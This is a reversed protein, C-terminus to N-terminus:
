KTGDLSTVYCGHDDHGTVVGKGDPTFAICYAGFHKLKRSLLMKGTMLDWLHLYGAYGSTALTKGDRSLALGYLDDPTPGMRKREKGDAVNWVRVYRDMGVTTLTAQDPSFALSTIPGVSPENSPKLALLPPVKLVAPPTFAAALASALPVQVRAFADPGKLTRLEKQGPVDWIKVTADNGASALLKGDPSFAVGYVSQAHSGLNKVEKGDAPNWLRVSKDASGSALLKGDPSFAVTDVIDTHGKLERLPKGDAVNWLRITKDLSSSALLQGDPSFAVCYVPGTHGTLTRLEKGSAFDWLKVLNDFGATALIKGDPSFALQYVLATHGKFEDPLRSVLFVPHMPPDGSHPSQSGTADPPPQGQECDTPSMPRPSAAGCRTRRSRGRCCSSCCTIRGARRPASARCSSAASRSGTWWRAPSRATSTCTASASSASARPAINEPSRSYLGGTLAYATGNAIELADDPRAGQLVALVPGFIEEQAIAATPPVDAFIHPGVYYGEDALSGSTAPTRWGRRARARRSTAAPHAAAGRRRDGPRRTCGPDEAPAIKLSRTAEVLRALFADHLSELVIARSCASCKQGQYGFASGVVGHVAEDLDADDDVIIANKGGMEAIVRKVHDQGPVADAAERNILLGVGRSGTFAIM